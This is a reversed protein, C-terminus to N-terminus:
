KAGESFSDGPDQVGGGILEMEENGWIWAVEKRRTFLRLPLMKGKLVDNGYDGSMVDNALKRQEAPDKALQKEFEEEKAREKARAEKAKKLLEAREKDEREKREAAEKALREAEEKADAAVKDRRQSELAVMKQREAEQMAKLRDQEQRIAKPKWGLPRLDLTVPRQKLCSMVKEVNRQVLELGNIAHVEHNMAVGKKAAFSDATVSIIMPPFGGSFRVGLPGAEEATFEFRKIGDEPAPLSLSHKPPAIDEVGVKGDESSSGSSSSDSSGKKKNKKGEKKKKDKKKKDKKKDKKADKKKKKDTKKKKKKSEEDSDSSSKRKKGM